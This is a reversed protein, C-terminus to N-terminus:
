SAEPKFRMSSNKQANEKHFNHFVKSAIRLYAALGIGSSPFMPLYYIVAVHAFLNKIEDISSHPLWDLM